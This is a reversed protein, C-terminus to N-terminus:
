LGTLPPMKGGKAGLRPNSAVVIQSHRRVIGSRASSPLQNWRIRCRHRGQHPQAEADAPPADDRAPPVRTNDQVLCNRNTSLALPSACDLLQRMFGARPRVRLTTSHPRGRGSELPTPRLQPACGGRTRNSAGRTSRQSPRASRVTPHTQVTTAEPPRPTRRCARPAYTGWDYNLRRPQHAGYPPRRNKIHAIQLQTLPTAPITRWNAM